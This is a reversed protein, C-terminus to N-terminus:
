IRAGLHFWTGDDHETKDERRRPGAKPPRRRRAVELRVKGPGTVSGPMTGKEVPMPAAKLGARGRIPVPAALFGRGGNPDGEGRDAPGHVHDTLVPKAM